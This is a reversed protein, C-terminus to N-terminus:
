VCEPDRQTWDVPCLTRLSTRGPDFDLLYENGAPLGSEYRTNGVGSPLLQNQKKQGWHRIVWTINKEVPKSHGNDVTM